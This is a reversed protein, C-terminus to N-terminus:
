TKVYPINIIIETGEGKRSKIELTGNLMKVRESIGTLGFVSHMPADKIISTDFGIGNDRIVTSITEGTKNIKVFSETAVSHKLINNMSEQIIRCFSVENEKDLLEDIDEIDSEFKIITSNSVLEIISKITETLGLRDLEVPRLNHSITRVNQLASSSLESIQKVYKAADSDNKISNLAMSANNKIIVIDQGVSDHLEASLKKREQEQSSILIRSFEEQAQKQKEVASIRKNVGYFIFGLISISAFIRFWWRKWWPPVITIRITKPQENWVGDNNSGKVKFVYEGPSIDTYKAENNNGSYVWDKDVGELIYKYQNKGPNVYDLAAFQLTFFNDRYSLEIEETSNIDQETKLENYLIRFSTFAIPPVHTNTKIKEPYFWNLGNVGGFALMGDDTRCCSEDNFEEDQIGDSIDYNTYNEKETNFKILGKTTGLWLNGSNDPAACLVYNSLLGAANNFHRFTYNSMDM